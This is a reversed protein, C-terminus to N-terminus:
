GTSELSRYDNPHDIYHLLLRNFTDVTMEKSDIRTGLHSLVGHLTRKCVTLQAIDQM